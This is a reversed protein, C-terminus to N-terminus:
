AGAEFAQKVVLLVPCKGPKYRIFPNSYTILIKFWSVPLINKFLETKWPLSLRKEFSGHEDGRGGLCVYSDAVYETEMLFFYATYVDTILRYLNNIIISRAQNEIERNSPWSSTEIM